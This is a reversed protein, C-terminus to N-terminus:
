RTGEKVFAEFAESLEHWLEVHVRYIGLKGGFHLATNEIGSRRSLSLADDGRVDGLCRDCDVTNQKNSSVTTAASTIRARKRLCISHRPGQTKWASPSVEM